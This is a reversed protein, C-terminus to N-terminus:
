ACAALRKKANAHNQKRRLNSTERNAYHWALNKTRYYKTPNNSCRGDKYVHMLKPNCAPHLGLRMAHHINQMPTVYELNSPHCNEKNADKHNVQYGLPKKGFVLLSVLAHMSTKKGGITVWLYGASCKWPNIKGGKKIRSFSLLEVKDDYINLRYHPPIYFGESAVPM